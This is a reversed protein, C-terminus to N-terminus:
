PAGPADKGSHAATVLLGATITALTTLVLIVSSKNEQFWSQASPFPKETASLSKQTEAYTPVPANAPDTIVPGPNLPAPDESQLPSAAFFLSLFPAMWYFTKRM